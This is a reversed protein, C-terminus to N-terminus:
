TTSGTSGGREAAAKEVDDSDADADDAEDDDADVDDSSEDERASDADGDADGCTDGDVDGDAGGGDGDQEESEVQPTREAADPRYVEREEAIAEASQPRRSWLLVLMVVALVFLLLSIWMNLRWSVGFLSIWQTSKDLEDIRLSEIWFRGLSYYAVYTWTLMGAKVQFRRYLLLLGLFGLLNWVSEYLFTPHFLTAESMHSVASVRAEVDVNLGWPLTTPAGYLEQNFYNGWRGIAQALLVGPVVADTFAPFKMGYRRCGLWVGVAGLLVAGIIGLGGLWIQPIRSIDGGEGFYADPSTIVHYLRGGVIGLLVAWIGADLVNEPRGGRSVWLRRTVYFALAIGVAICLGYMTLRFPGVIDLGEFPPAPIGAAIHLM